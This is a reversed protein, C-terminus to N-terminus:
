RKVKKKPRLRDEPINLTKIAIEEVNARVENYARQVSARNSGSIEVFLKRGGPPVAKGLEVYQGKLNVRVGVRDELQSRFERTVGKARAIEPYDNIEFEMSQSNAPPLTVPVVGGM